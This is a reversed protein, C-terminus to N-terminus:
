GRAQPAPAPAPVTQATSNPGVAQNGVVSVGGQQIVGYNLITQQQTSFLTTDVGHDDLFDRIAALAHRYLTALARDADVEQFYNQYEPGSALERVSFRAGHDFTPDQKIATLEHKLRKARRKQYRAQAAAAGPARVVTGFTEALAEFRLVGRRAATLRAPLLDVSHYRAHVPQLLHAEAQIYLTKGNTSLHLFTSAVVDGGWLPLHAALYHRAVGDPHLAIQRVTERDLATPPTYGATPLLRPDGDLAAGNAFVRSELLLGTLNTEAADPPTASHRVSTERLRDRIATMAEWADFEEVEAAPRAGPQHAALIPVALQWNNYAEAFGVFPRYGSYVTLNGRQADAITTLRDRMWGPWEAEAPGSPQEPDFVERRLRDRLLADVARHHHLILLYAAVVAALMVLQAPWGGAYTGCFWAWFGQPEIPALPMLAVVSALYAAPGAAALKWWASAPVGPSRGRDPRDAGAKRGALGFVALVALAPLLWYPGTLVIAGLVVCLALDRQQRLARAALAHRAVPVLDLGPSTAVAGFDDSVLDETVRRAFAPDTYAAASLYRTVDGPVSGLPTAATTKPDEAMATSREPTRAPRRATRDADPVLYQAAGFRQLLLALVLGLLVGFGATAPLSQPLGYTAHRLDGTVAFMAVLTVLQDLLAALVGVGVAGAAVRWRGRGLPLLRPPLLVLAALLVGTGAIGVTRRGTDDLVQYTLDAFNETWWAPFHLQWQLWQTFGTEPDWDHLAEQGTASGLVALVAVLLYLRPRLLKGRAGNPEM